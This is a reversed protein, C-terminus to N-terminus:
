QQKIYNMYYSPTVGSYKKFAINFVSKSKFGVSDAIGEISYNQYEPDSMMKQAERIRLENIFGTFNKKYHNNIAKSLYASNTGCKRALTSLNVNNNLYIKKRKIQYDLKQMIGELTAPDMSHNNNGDPLPKKRKLQNAGSKMLLLNKEMIQDYAKKKKRNQNILFFTLGLIILLAISISYITIQKKKLEANKLLDNKKMINLQNEMKDTEFKIQLESVIRETKNNFFSDKLFVYRQYHDLSKEFYGIRKYLDSLYLCTNKELYSEHSERSIEFAKLLSKESKEYDGTIAYFQGVQYLYRIRRSPEGYLKTMSDARRFYYRASDMNNIQKHLNALSILIHSSMNKIGHKFGINLGYWYYERAKDYNKEQQYYINGIHFCATAVGKYDQHYEYIDLARGHYELAKKYGIVHITHYAMTVYMDAMALSDGLEAYMNIAKQSYGVSQTRGVKLAMYDYIEAIKRKYRLINYMDIAKQLYEVAKDDLNVKFYEKGIFRYAKALLFYNKTKELYKISILLNNIIEKAAEECNNRKCQCLAVYYYTKGLLEKLIVNDKETKYRKLGIQLAKELFGYSIDLSDEICYLMGLQAYSRAMDLKSSKKGSWKMARKAYLKAQYMNQRYTLESLELYIRPKLRDPSVRILRLLSDKLKEQKDQSYAPTSFLFIM